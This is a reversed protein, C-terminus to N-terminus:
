SGKKAGKSKVSPAKEAFKMVMSRLGSRKAKKKSTKKKSKVGKAM